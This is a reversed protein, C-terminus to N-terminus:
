RLGILARVKNAILYTWTTKKAYIVAFKQAQDCEKLEVLYDGVMKPDGGRVISINPSDGSQFTCIPQLTKLSEVKVLSLKTGFTPGISPQSSDVQSLYTANDFSTYAFLLAAIAGGILSIITSILKYIVDGGVGDIIRKWLAKLRNRQRM